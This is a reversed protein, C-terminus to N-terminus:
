VFCEYIGYSLVVLSVGMLGFVIVMNLLVVLSMVVSVDFYLVFSICLSSVVLVNCLLWSM